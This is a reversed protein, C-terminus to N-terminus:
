FGKETYTCLSARCHWLGLIVLWELRRVRKEIIEWTKCQLTDLDFLQDSKRKLSHLETQWVIQRGYRSHLLVM